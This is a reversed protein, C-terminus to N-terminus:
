LCKLVAEEIKMLAIGEPKTKELMIYEAPSVTVLIEANANEANFWRNEAVKVMVDPMYENMILNGALMTHESNNLMEKINGCASLIDRLPKIEELDRALLPSDQPTFFLDQKKVKLKGDKILGAIFATFTVIEPKLEIGWEKYERMMIKADAPDYCIVTKYKALAKANAEMIEKAENAAGVLFEMSYGSNPEDKLVTFDVGAKNLLKIADKACATRFTIEAITIGGDNLGKLTDITDKLEKIVVVPVIKNGNFM